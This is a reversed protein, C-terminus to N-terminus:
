VEKQWSLKNSEHRTFVFLESDILLDNHGKKLYKIRINQVIM